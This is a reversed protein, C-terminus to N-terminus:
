DFVNAVGGHKFLEQRRAIPTMLRLLFVASLAGTLSSAADFSFSVIGPTMNSFGGATRVSINALINTLIWCTWWLAIRSESPVPEGISHHSGHYIQSMGKAPQWLNAIPIFYWGVAWGPSMEPFSSGVTYLNKMARYTFRSVLLVCFWFLVTQVIGFITITWSIVVLQPTSFQVNTSPLYWWILFLAAFVLLLEAAIFGLLGARAWNFLGTLSRPGNEFAHPNSTDNTRSLEEDTNSIVAGNEGFEM